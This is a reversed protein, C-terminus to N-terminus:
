EFDILSTKLDKEQKTLANLENKYGEGLLKKANM